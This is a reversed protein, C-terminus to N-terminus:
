PPLHSSRLAIVHRRVLRTQATVKRFIEGAKITQSVRQSTKLTKEWLRQLASVGAHLIEKTKTYIKIKM